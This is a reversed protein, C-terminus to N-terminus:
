KVWVNSSNDLKKKIEWACTLAHFFEKVVVHVYLSVDPILKVGMLEKGGTRKKVVTCKQKGGAWTLWTTCVCHTCDYGTLQSNPKWYLLVQLRGPCTAKHLWIDFCPKLLYNITYSFVFEDDYFFSLSPSHSLHWVSRRYNSEVSLM